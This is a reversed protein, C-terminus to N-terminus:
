RHQYSSHSHADDFFLSNPASGSAPRRAAVVLRDRELRAARDLRLRIVPEDPLLALGIRNRGPIKELRRRPAAPAGCQM